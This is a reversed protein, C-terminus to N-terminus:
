VFPTLPRGMACCSYYVVSVASYLESATQADLENSGAQLQSYEGAGGYSPPAKSRTPPHQVETVFTDSCWCCFWRVM